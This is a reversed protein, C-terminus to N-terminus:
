LFAGAVDEHKEVVDRFHVHNITCISKMAERGVSMAENAAFPLTTFATPVIDDLVDKEMDLSRQTAPEELQAERGRVLFALNGTWSNEYPWKKWLQGSLDPASLM